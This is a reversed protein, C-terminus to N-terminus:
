LQVDECYSIVEGEGCLTNVSPIGWCSPGPIQWLFPKSMARPGDVAQHFFIGLIREWPIMHAGEGYSSQQIRAAFCSAARPEEGSTRETRKGHGLWGGVPGPLREDRAHKVETEASCSFKSWAEEMEDKGRRARPRQEASYVKPPGQDQEGHSDAQGRLECVARRRREFSRRRKTTVHM